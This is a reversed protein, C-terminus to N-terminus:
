LKLNGRTVVRPYVQPWAHTHGPGRTPSDLHVRSLFSSVVLLVSGGVICLVTWKYSRVHSKRHLWAHPYDKGRTPMHPISHKVAMRSNHLYSSEFTIQKIQLSVTDLSLLLRLRVYLVVLKCFCKPCCWKYPFIHSLMECRRSSGGWM